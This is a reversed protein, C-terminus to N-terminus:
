EEPEEPQDPQVIAVADSTNSPAAWRATSSEAELDALMDKVRSWARQAWDSMTKVRLDILGSLDVGPEIRSRAQLLQAVDWRDKIGGADLKMLAIIPATAIPGLAPHVFATEVAERM